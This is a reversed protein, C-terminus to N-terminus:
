GLGSRWHGKGLASRADPGFAVIGMRLLTRISASFSTTDTVVVFRSKPIRQRILASTLSPPETVRGTLRSALMTRSIGLRSTDRSAEGLWWTLSEEPPDVKRMM